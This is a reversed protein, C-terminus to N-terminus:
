SRPLSIWRKRLGLLCCFGLVEHGGVWSDCGLGREAAGPGRKQGDVKWILCHLQTM